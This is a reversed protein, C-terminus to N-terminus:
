PRGRLHKGSGSRGNLVPYEFYNQPAGLNQQLALVVSIRAQHNVPGPIYLHLSPIKIKLTEIASFKSFCAKVWIKLESANWPVLCLQKVSTCHTFPVPFVGADIREKSQASRLNNPQNM